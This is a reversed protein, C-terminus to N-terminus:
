APAKAVGSQEAYPSRAAAPNPRPILRPQVKLSEVDEVMGLKALGVGINRRHAGTGDVNRVLVMRWSWPPKFIRNQASKAEVSVMSESKLSDLPVWALGIMALLFFQAGSPDDAVRVFVFSFSPCWERSSRAIEVECSVSSASV